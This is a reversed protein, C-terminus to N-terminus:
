LNTTISLSPNSQSLISSYTPQSQHHHIENHRRLESHPPFLLNTNIIISRITTSPLQHPNIQNYNITISQSSLSLLSSEVDKYVKEKDLDCTFKWKIELCPSTDTNESTRKMLNFFKLSENHIQLIGHDNPLSPLHDFIFCSILLYYIHYTLLNLSKHSTTWTIHARQLTLLM